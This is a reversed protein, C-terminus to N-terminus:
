NEIIIPNGDLFAGKGCDETKALPYCAGAMRLIRISGGSASLGALNSTRRVIQRAGGLGKIEEEERLGEPRLSLRPFFPEKRFPSRSGTGV